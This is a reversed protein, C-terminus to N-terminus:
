RYPELQWLNGSKEGLTYVLRDRALSLGWASARVHALSRTASHLHLVERAPGVPHGSDLPQAWVCYFGDRDSVFYLLKGDPSWFPHVNGAPAAAIPIWRSEPPPLAEIPAIFVTAGAPESQVHFAIWRRDPSIRARFVSGRPHPHALLPRIGGTTLDFLEFRFPPGSYCVLENGRPSWELVNLGDGELLKRAPGGSSPMLWLLTTDPERCNYVVQSGDPSIMARDKIAGDDTMRRLRRTALDELWVERHGSRTSLFVMRRGDLSLSPHEDEAVTDSLREPTGLVNGSSSDLSVSWISANSRTSAFVLLGGAYAPTVETGSGLTVRRPLGGTRHTSRDLELEWLATSDGSSGSFVFYEATGTSRWVAPDWPPGVLKTTRFIEDAGTPMPEGDGAACVWFDCHTGKCGWFM